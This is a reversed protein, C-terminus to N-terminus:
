FVALSKNAYKHFFDLTARLEMRRVESPVGSLGVSGVSRETRRSSVDPRRRVAGDFTIACSVFISVLAREGSGM